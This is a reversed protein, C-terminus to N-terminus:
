QQDKKYKTELYDIAEQMLTDAPIGTSKSLVDLRQNINEYKNNKRKNSVEPKTKVPEETRSSKVHNSKDSEMSSSKGSEVIASKENEMSASKCGDESASFREIGMLNRGKFTILYSFKNLVCSYKWEEVENRANGKDPKIERTTPEGCMEIATYKTIGVKIERNGVCKFSSVKVGGYVHSPIFLITLMLFIYIQNNIVADRKKM